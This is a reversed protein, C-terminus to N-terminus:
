EERHCAAGRYKSIMSQEYADPDWEFPEAEKQVGCVATFLLQSVANFTEKWGTRSRWWCLEDFEDAPLGLVQIRSETTKPLVRNTVLRVNRSSLRECLIVVRRQPSEGAAAAIRRAADDIDRMGGTLLRMRDAPVGLGVLEEMEVGHNPRLIGATVAYSPERELVWIEEVAGNHFLEAARQLRHDGGLVVAADARSVPEEAILYAGLARLWWVHSALLVLVLGLLFRRFTIWGGRGFWARRPALRQKVSM